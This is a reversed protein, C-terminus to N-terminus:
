EVTVGTYVDSKLNSERSGSGYSNPLGATQYINTDYVNSHQFKSDEPNNFTDSLKTYSATNPGGVFQIYELTDPRGYAGSLGGVRTGWGDASLLIYGATRPYIDNFIYKEIGLSDNYFKNLEADSGDYPYYDLIREFAGKYYLYASGYKAFNTPESYDIQPLFSDQRRKIEIANTSSEVSKFAERQDTESLYNKGENTSEFLKKISM